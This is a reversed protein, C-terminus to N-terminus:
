RVIGGNKQIKEVISSILFLQKLEMLEQKVYSRAYYIGNYYVGVGACQYARRICGANLLQNIDTRKDQTFLLYRFCM